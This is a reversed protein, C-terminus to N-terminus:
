GGGRGVGLGLQKCLAGGTDKIGVDLDFVDNGSRLECPLPGSFLSSPSPTPSLALPDLDHLNSRLLGLPTSFAKKHGEGIFPSANHPRLHSPRKTLLCTSAPAMM